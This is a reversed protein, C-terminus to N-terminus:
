LGDVLRFVCEEGGYRDRKKFWVSLYNTTWPGGLWNGVSLADALSLSFTSFCASPKKVASSRTPASKQWSIFDINVEVFQYMARFLAKEDALLWCWISICVLSNFWYSVHGGQSLRNRLSSFVPCRPLILWTTLTCSRPSGLLPVPM